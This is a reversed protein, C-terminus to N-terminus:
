QFLPETFPSGVYYCVPVQLHQNEDGYRSHTRNYWVWVVFFFIITFLVIADSRCRLYQINLFIMKLSINGHSSEKGIPIDSKYSPSGEDGCM